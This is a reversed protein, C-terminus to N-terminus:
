RGPAAHRWAGAFIAAAEGDTGGGGVGDDQAFRGDVGETAVDKMGVVTAEGGGTGSGIRGPQRVEKLLAVAQAAAKIEVGGTLGHSVGHDSKMGGDVEEWRREAIPVVSEASTGRVAGM